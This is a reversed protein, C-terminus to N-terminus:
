CSLGVGAAAMDERSPMKVRWGSSSNLLVVRSSDVVEGISFGDGEEGLDVVGEGSLGCGPCVVAGADLAFAAGADDGLGVGSACIDFGDLGHGEVV